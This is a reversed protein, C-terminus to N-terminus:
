LGKKELSMKYKLIHTINNDDSWSRHRLEIALGYFNFNNIVALLIQRGFKDNKFSPPFQALLAGLKKSTALPEISRKFLKIDESSIVADEGTAKEYM